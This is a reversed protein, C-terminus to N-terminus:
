HGLVKAVIEVEVPGGGPLSAVGIATRAHGDPFAANLVASAADLVAAHDEFDDPACLYGRLQVIAEVGELGAETLSALIALANLTAVEAAARADAISVDDGIRGRSSLVGDVRPLQGATFVLAGAAM